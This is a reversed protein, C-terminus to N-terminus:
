ILIITFPLCAIFALTIAGTEDSWANREHPLMGEQWGVGAWWRYFNFNIVVIM